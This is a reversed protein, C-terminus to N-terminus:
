LLVVMPESDNGTARDKYPGTASKPTGFDKSVFEDTWSTASVSAKLM